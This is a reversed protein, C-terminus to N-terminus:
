QTRGSREQEEDKLMFAPMYYTEGSRTKFKLSPNPNTNKSSGISTYGRDYLSCYPVEMDRLFAWVHSYSWNLLPSIRVFQPWGEDTFQCENLKVHKPLDSTRTGMFISKIQTESKLKELALKFNPGSYSMLNLNYREVTLKVFKELLSFTEPMEIYFVNLKNNPFKNIFLSYVIHLLATCDKGGNFSICLEQPKYDNLSKNILAISKKVNEHEESYEFLVNISKQSNPPLANLLANEPLLFRFVAEAKNIIEELNAKFTVKFSSKRGELQSTNLCIGPCEETTKEVTSRLWNEDCCINISRKFCHNNMKSMQPM